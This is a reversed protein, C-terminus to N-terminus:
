LTLAHNLFVVLNTTLAGYNPPPPPYDFRRVRPILDYLHDYYSLDQIMARYFQYKLRRNTVALELERELQELGGEDAHIIQLDWLALEHPTHLVHSILPKLPMTLGTGTVPDWPVSWGYPNFYCAIAFRLPSFQCATKLVRDSFPELAQTNNNYSQHVLLTESRQAEEAEATAKASRVRMRQLAQIKAPTPFLNLPHRVYYRLRETMGGGVYVNLKSVQKLQEVTPMKHVLGYRVYFEIRQWPDVSFQVMIDEGPYAAVDTACHSSAQGSGKGEPLIV